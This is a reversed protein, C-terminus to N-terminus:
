DQEDTKERYLRQDQDNAQWANVGWWDGDAPDYPDADGPLLIVTLAADASGSYGIVRVSLGSISAPDPDLWCSEPDAVAEEAWVPDVQHRDRIYVARKSWDIRGPVYKM